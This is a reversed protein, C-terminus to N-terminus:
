GRPELNVGPLALHGSDIPLTIGTINSALASNLFLAANAVVHPSMFNSGKLVGYSRGAAVLDAYTGSQGGGRFLDYMHQNDTMATLVVGPHLSNVRIGEPGLRLAASKMLGVLAFKSAAYHPAFSSGELGNVSSTIVISGQQRQIMHPVVAKISQWVGTLNIDITEQWIERSIDELGGLPAIGANAILCDIRGFRGLGESVASNLADQDRVDAELGLVHRDLAEVARATVAMDEATTHPYPSTAIPKTTDVFVVDAGERASVVAHARGQGRGGGTIFVVMGDLLGM